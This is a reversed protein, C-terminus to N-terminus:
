LKTMWKTPSQNNNTNKHSNNNNSSNSNCNNNNNNTTTTCDIALTHLQKEQYEWGNPREFWNTLAASKNIPDQKQKNIKHRRVTKRRVLSLIHQKRQFNRITMIWVSQVHKNVNITTTTNREAKMKEGLFRIIVLM